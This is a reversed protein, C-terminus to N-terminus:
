EEKHGKGRDKSCIENNGNADTCLIQVINVRRCGGGKWQYWGGSLVQEARKNETKTLFFFSLKIQKIYSYLSNRQSMEM